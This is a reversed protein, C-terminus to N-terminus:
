IIKLSKELGNSLNKIKIQKNNKENEGIVILKSFMKENAKKIQKTINKFGEDVMVFDEQIMQKKVKLVLDEVDGAWCIYIGKRENNTEKKTLLLVREIGLAFGLAPTDEGDISKSLGDYRGGAAVANQAKNEDTMVWEFVLGNYYDLGRMLSYDIEFSIEMKELITIMKKWKELSEQSLFDIIKPANLIINKTAEDKSDLIRLPNKIIREQSTKDLQDKFPMIWEIFYKEYSKREEITGVNNIKLTLYDRINLREFLRDLDVLLEIDAIGEKSGIIEMGFQQFQKFRGAQPRENRFMYGSYYWKQAGINRGGQNNWARIAGATGEPRLVLEEKNNNISLMEKDVVDTGEGISRNYLEKQEVLPLLIPSAGIEEAWKKCINELKYYESAKIIEPFGAQPKFNKKSM